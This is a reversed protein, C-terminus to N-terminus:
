LSQDQLEYGAHAFWGAADELTVAALAREIAEMLAERMRAGVKRM